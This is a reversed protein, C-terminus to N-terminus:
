YFSIHDIRITWLIHMNVEGEESTCIWSSSATGDLNVSCCFTADPKVVETETPTQLTITKVLQYDEYDHIM